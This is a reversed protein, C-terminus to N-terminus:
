GFNVKELNLEAFSNIVSAYVRTIHPNSHGLADQVQELSGSAKLLQTAYTHRCLHAWLKLGTHKSVTRIRGAVSPYEMPKGWENLILPTSLGQDRKIKDGSAILKISPKHFREIYVKWKDIILQSVMVTRQKSGKAFEAPVRIFKHGHFWPMDRLELGLLETARLGTYFYSELLILTIAARRNGNRAKNRCYTLVYMVQEHDLYSAPDLGVRKRTGKRSKRRARHRQKCTKAM